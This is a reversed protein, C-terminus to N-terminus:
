LMALSLIDHSVAGGFFDQTTKSNHSLIYRNQRRGSGARGREIDGAGERHEPNVNLSIFLAYTYTQSGSVKNEKSILFVEQKRGRAHVCGSEQVRQRLEM